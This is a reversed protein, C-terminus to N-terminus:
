TNTKFYLTDQLFIKHHESLTSLILGLYQRKKKFHYIHFFQTQRFLIIYHYTQM